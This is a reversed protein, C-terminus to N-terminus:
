AVCEFFHVRLKGFFFRPEILDDDLSSIRRNGNIDALAALITDTRTIAARASGNARSAHSCAGSAAAAAARCVSLCATRGPAAPSHAQVELVSLPHRHVTLHDAEVKIESEIAECHASDVSVM